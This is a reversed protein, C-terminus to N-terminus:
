FLRMFAHFIDVYFNGGLKRLLQFPMNPAGFFPRLTWALQTGVFSYLIMWFLLIKNRTSVAELSPKEVSEKLDIAVIMKYFFSIGVIGSVSFFLVNLLKFFIYNRSTLLFFLTVPAFALLIISMVCVATLMYTLSKPFTTKSGFLSYFIFFTPFCILTTALYLLPLKILSSISQAFSNSLGMIFGYSAFGILSIVLLNILKRKIEVGDAIENIFKERNQLLEIVTNIM